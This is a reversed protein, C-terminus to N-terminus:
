KKGDIVCRDVFFSYCELKIKELTKLRAVILCFTIKSDSLTKKLFLPVSITSFRIIGHAFLGCCTM